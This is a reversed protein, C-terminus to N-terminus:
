LPKYPFTTKPGQSWVRAFFPELSGPSKFRWHSGKLRNHALHRPAGLLFGRPSKPCGGPIPSNPLAVGAFPVGPWQCFVRFTAFGFLPFQRQGRPNINKPFYFGKAVAQDVPIPWPVWNPKQVAMLSGLPGFHNCSLIPGREGCCMPASFSAQTASPFM